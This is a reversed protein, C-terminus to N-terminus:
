GGPRSYPIFDGFVCSGVTAGTSTDLIEAIDGRCLAATGVQRTLLAYPPRLSPCGGQMGNVYVQRRGVRFAVAHEDPVVMDNTHYHQLCSIPPGAVKGATLAALEAHQRATMAGANPPLAMTCSGIAPAILLLSLHKM